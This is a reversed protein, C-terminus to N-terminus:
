FKQKFITEFFKKKHYHDSIHAWILLYLYFTTQKFEVLDIKTQFNVLRYIQFSTLEKYVVLMAWKRKTTWGQLDIEIKELKSIVNCQVVCELFSNGKQIESGHFGREM